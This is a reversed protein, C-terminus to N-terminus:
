KEKSYQKILSYSQYIGLEGAQSLDAIGRDRQGMNLYCLGRNYYADPFRADTELARTFALAGQAYNGESLLVLGLNYHACVLDPALDLAHELDRKVLAYQMSISETKTGESMVQAQAWQSQARMFYLMPMYTPKAVAKSAHYLASDLDAIAAQFDRVHHYEMARQMYSQTLNQQRQIRTTLVRINDFHIDLNEATVGAPMNTLRAVSPLHRNLDDLLSTYTQYAGVTSGKIYYSLVFAERPMLTASREQVRGRIESVYNQQNETPTDEVVLRDFKSPDVDEKKRTARNKPKYTGTHKEINAKMVTFEDREAGYIDGVKRRIRARTQYGVWFEPYDKLVSSIDRLAGKYDGTRDLLLARNYLAITNTPEQELVFNFDEIARNDEAVQARLLGRNFHGLYNGPELELAQDYDTMAGRLNDLHVRALARNIYLGAQRPLQLIAKSLEDDAQRYNARSLSVGARMTWAQGNYPNLTMVMDLQKMAETTDSQAFAVQSRLLYNEERKPWQRIMQRLSSDAREYAKQEIQCLAMNHWAGVHMPNQSTVKRYDQEAEAYREMNVRCLGRLEYYRDMYPNRDVAKSLDQEAGLYDELYFKAMGRYFYPEALNPKANIVLNFRQISLVYDEYFLANRGMLMVHDTNFQARATVSMVLPIILLCKRLM